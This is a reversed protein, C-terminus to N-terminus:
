QKGYADKGLEREMGQQAKRLISLSEARDMTKLINLDDPMFELWVRLALIARTRQDPRGEKMLREAKKRLFVLRNCICKMANADKTVALYEAKIDAPCDDSNALIDNIHPMQEGAEEMTMIQVRVGVQRTDDTYFKTAVLECIRSDDTYILMNMADTIAKVLNDLDPRGSPWIARKPKSKPKLLYFQIQVRLPVDLPEAPKAQNAYTYVKQEWGVTKDPTRM